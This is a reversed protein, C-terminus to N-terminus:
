RIRKVRYKSTEIEQLFAPMSELFPLLHRNEWHIPVQGIPANTSYARLRVSEQV